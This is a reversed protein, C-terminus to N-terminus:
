CNMLALCDLDFPQDGCAPRSLGFVQAVKKIPFWVASHTYFVLTDAEAKQEDLFSM